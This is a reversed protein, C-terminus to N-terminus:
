SVFIIFKWLIETMGVYYIFFEKLFMPAPECALIILCNLSNYFSEYVHDSFSPPAKKLCVCLHFVIPRSHFHKIIFNCFGFSNLFISSRLCIPILLAAILSIYIVWFYLLKRLNSTCESFTHKYRFFSHNPILFLPNLINIIM